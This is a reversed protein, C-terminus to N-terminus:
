RRSQGQQQAFKAAAQAQDWSAGYPQTPTHQQIPSQPIYGSAGYQGVPQQPSQVGWGQPPFYGQQQQQQLGQGPTSYTFPQSFNQPMGTVVPSPYGGQALNMQQMQIQMQQRQAEMKRREIEAQVAASAVNQKALARQENRQEVYGVLGASSPHQADKANKTLDILPTGTARAINEQERASLTTPKNTGLIPGAGRSQPRSLPRSPPRGPSDLTPTRQHQAQFQSWDGSVQRSVPSTNSSKSRGHAPIPSTRPQAAMTARQQVWEEPDLKPRGSQTGVTVGMGPQWAVNKGDTGRALDSSNSPTRFHGLFGPSAGGSIQSDRKRDNSLEALIERSRSARDHAVQTMTGSTGPRSKVERTLDYTPGFDIDIIDTSTKKKRQQMGYHADGIVVDPKPVLDPNGV